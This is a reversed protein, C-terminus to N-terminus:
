QIQVIGYIYAMSAGAFGLRVIRETAKYLQYHDNRVEPFFYYATGFTTFGFLGAAAVSRKLFKKFM